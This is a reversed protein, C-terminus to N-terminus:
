YPSVYVESVASLEICRLVAAKHIKVVEDILDISIGTNLANAIGPDVTATAWLSFVNKNKLMNKRAVQFDQFEKLALNHAHQLCKLEREIYKDNDIYPIFLDEALRSLTGYLNAM